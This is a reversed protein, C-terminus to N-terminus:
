SEWGLHMRALDVVLFVLVTVTANLTVLTVLRWLAVASVGTLGLAVTGAVLMVWGGALWQVLLQGRDLWRRGFWLGTTAVLYAGSIAGVPAASMAEQLWGIGVAWMLGGALSRSSMAAYTVAAALWDARLGGLVPVSPLNAQVSATVLLAVVAAAWKVARDSM